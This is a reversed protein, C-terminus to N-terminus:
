DLSEMPKLDTLIVTITIHSPSLPPCYVFLSVLGNNSKVSFRCFVYNFANSCKKLNLILFFVSPLRDSLSIVVTYM